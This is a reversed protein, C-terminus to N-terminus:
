KDYEPYMRKYDEPYMNKACEPCISHSFEAESHHKIYSEIQSWYGKDDRIKKCSTCIPLMGSLTKIKSLADRLETILNEREKEALKLDTIDVFSCVINQSTPIIAVSMLSHRLEGDKRYFTFEYREPASKPDILRKRNYEKLRELDGPPILTTWSKGIVDEEEYLSRKCYEKNVMSITTDRDLIAMAASSNEFITRFREESERLVEEARKRDTQDETHVIILDPPIFGYHVSLFRGPAFHRSTLERRV